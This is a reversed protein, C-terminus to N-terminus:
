NPGLVRVNKQDLVDDEAAFFVNKSKMEKFVFKAM